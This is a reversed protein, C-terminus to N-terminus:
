SASNHLLSFEFKQARVDYEFCWKTWHEESFIDKYRVIGYWVLTMTDELLEEKQSQGYKFTIFKEMSLNPGLVGHTPEFYDNYDLAEEDFAGTKFIYNHSVQVDFAPSEGANILYIRGDVPEVTRDGRTSKWDRVVVWARRSQLMTRSHSASEQAADASRKAAAANRDSVVWQLATFFAAVIAVILAATEAYTM